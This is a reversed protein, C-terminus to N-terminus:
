WLKFGTRTCITFLGLRESSSRCCSSCGVLSVLGIALRWGNMEPCFFMKRTIELDRLNVVVSVVRVEM